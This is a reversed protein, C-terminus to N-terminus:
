DPARSMAALHQELEALPLKTLDKGYAAAVKAATGADLRERLEALSRPPAVLVLRDFAGKGSAQNLHEAVGDVFETKAVLHPDQRPEVSHHASNGSERVRGPRDSRLDRAPLHAEASALSAVTELGPADDNRHKVIHARSGDAIVIWTTRRRAM